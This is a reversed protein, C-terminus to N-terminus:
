LRWERVSIQNLEIQFFLASNPRAGPVLQWCMKGCSNVEHVAIELEGFTLFLSPFLKKQNHKVGSKQIDSQRVPYVLLIM